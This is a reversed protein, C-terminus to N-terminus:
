LRVTKLSLNAKTITSVSDVNFRLYEGESLSTAWGTLTSSQAKLALTISPKSSGTISNGSSPPYNSYTNKWIDIQISGVQDAVLDWGTILCDYPVRLDTTVPLNVQSGGGDVIFVLEGLLLNSDTTKNYFSDSIDILAARIDAASIDGSNNDNISVNVDAQIASRSKQTM